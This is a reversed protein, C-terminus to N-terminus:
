LVKSKEIEDLKGQSFKEINNMARSIMASFSNYTVGGIHPTLIVNQCKVIENNESIPESEHVDLGAFAIKGKNLAEIIDANNILGGRATNVIVVGDKMKEINERCVINRTSDLLPCHLSIIDSDKFLEELSCYNIGLEREEDESLRYLDYYVIKVEFVKLLRVLAKAINGMGIMGVTKGKLEYTAVGIKQKRWIGNITNNHFITLKRLCALILLLSHEAVSQANIGQNVYLPIEREKIEDLDLSDLGVGTRQIMKLNTMKSLLNGDVKTRGSAIMYDIKDLNELNDSLGNFLQFEEPLYEQYIDLPGSEYKSILLINKM